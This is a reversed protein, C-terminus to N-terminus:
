QKQKLRSTILIPEGTAPMTSQRKIEAYKDKNTDYIENAFGSGSFLLIIAKGSTKQL